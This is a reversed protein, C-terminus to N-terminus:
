LEGIQPLIKSLKGRVKVSNISNSVWQAGSADFSFSGQLNSKCHHCELIRLARSSPSQLIGGM